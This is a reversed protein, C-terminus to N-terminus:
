AKTFNQKCIWAMYVYMYINVYIFVNLNPQSHLSFFRFSVKLFSAQNQSFILESPVLNQGYITGM